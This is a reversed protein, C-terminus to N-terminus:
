SSASEVIKELACEFVGVTRDVNKNKDLGFLGIRFCRERANFAEGLKFPVGGAVQLGNDKFKQYMGDIKDSYSVVVGPAKFGPAAVSRFGKSELVRRIKGGLEQIKEKSRDFGFAETEKIVDTWMMLADTPLTTYYKPIGKEYSAMVSTWKELNCCFSNQSPQKSMNVTASRARESMMVLGACAPGTWGKQPASIIVDVGCKKMDVWVTGSAICDLVFVADVSHAADAIAKIYDDPLIMGTSTEVHPAFVVAPAISKIQEVIEAVPLPAFQPLGSSDYKKM